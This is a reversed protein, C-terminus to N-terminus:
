SCRYLIIYLWIREMTCRGMQEMWLRGMSWRGIIQEMELRGMTYRGIDLNNHWGSM